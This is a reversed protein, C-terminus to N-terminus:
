GFFAYVGHLAVALGWFLFLWIFAGKLGSLIAILALIFVFVVLHYVFDRVRTRTTTATQVQEKNQM